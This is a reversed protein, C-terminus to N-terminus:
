SPKIKNSRINDILFLTYNIIDFGENEVKQLYYPFEVIACDLEANEVTIYKQLKPITLQSWHGKNINKPNNLKDISDDVITHFGQNRQHINDLYQGIHEHQTKLDDITSNSIDLKIM